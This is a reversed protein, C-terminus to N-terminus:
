FGTNRSIISDQLVRSEIQKKKQEYNKTNKLVVQNKPVWETKPYMRVTIKYETARDEIIMDPYLCWWSRDMFVEGILDLRDQLIKVKYKLDQIQTEMDRHRCTFISM